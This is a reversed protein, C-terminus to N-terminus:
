ALNWNKLTAVAIEEPTLKALNTAGITLTYEYLGLAKRDVLADIWSLITEKSYLTSASLDLGNCNFTEKGEGLTVFELAKCDYFIANTYTVSSPIIASKLSDCFMFAFNGLTTVGYPINISTLSRCERFCYQRIENLNKPFKIDTINICNWFAYNSIITINDPLILEGRIGAREFANDAILTVSEPISVTHMSDCNAFAKAGIRTIGEPITIKTISRDILKILIEKDEGGGVSIEDIKSAYTDITGDGVEVGKNEISTKISTKANQLREIESVISM